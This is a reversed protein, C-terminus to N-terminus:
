FYVSRQPQTRPTSPVPVEGDKVEGNTEQPFRAGELLSQHRPWVHISASTRTNHRAIWAYVFPRRPSQLFVSDAPLRYRRETWCRCTRCKRFMCTRCLCQSRQTYSGHETSAAPLTTTPLQEATAPSLTELARRHQIFSLQVHCVTIQALASFLRIQSLNTCLSRDKLKVNRPDCTPFLM